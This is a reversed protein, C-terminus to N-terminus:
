SAVLDDSAIHGDRMVVLRNASLGFGQDHTVDILKLGDDNLDSLLQM